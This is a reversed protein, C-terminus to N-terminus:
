DLKIPGLYGAETPHNQEKNPKPHQTVATIYGFGNVNKHWFASTTEAGEITSFIPTLTQTRTDFNWIMNNTHKNTDEGIILSNSENLFSINDPNALGALSCKEPNDSKPLGAILGKISTVVYNSNMTKHSTVPLQYVGGCGNYPLKIHNKGGADYKPNDLGKRQFDEMGRSIESISLYLTNSQPNFTIGEAKRFETTAGLYAATRRTELRSAILQDQADIKGDATIDQLLLCEQGSMTNVSTYGSACQGNEDMKGSKFIQSFKPKQAVVKRITQSDTHGLSIWEINAEGQGIGSTQQWKAAYLHGSSLDQAQDAIFLYFGGNVGDDSMYVTREDPMVYALEHSFRGMAYHKTYLANERKDIRVEPTWGYYYPSARKLDGQWYHQLEDYYKEGTLGTTPDFQREVKKANPEYEESALHTQWTTTQGACHTFGGFESSQDIFKLTDPKISLVGNPSQQLESMYMAGIVCEYQSVMYLKNNTQLISIHDMGAGVGDNTGSCIYDSGDAFQIPKGAVDKIVGFIEGNNKDGTRFLTQYNLTQANGNIRVEDSHTIVQSAKHQPTIANFQVDIPAQPQSCASLLLISFLSPTTLHFTKNM